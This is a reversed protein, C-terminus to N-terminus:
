KVRFKEKLEKQVIEEINSHSNYLYKKVEDKPVWKIWEISEEEQPHLPENKDAKMDFWHTEKLVNESLKYDHYEHQTTGIFRILTVNRLGTEERVERLACAEFTENKEVHGKPLDWKSRRYIFLMENCENWIIGGAALIKKM